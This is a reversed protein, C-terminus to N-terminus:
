GSRHISGLDPSDLGRLEASHSGELRLEGVVALPLTRVLSPVDRPLARPPRDALRPDAAALLSLAVHRPEPGLHRVFDLALSFRGSGVASRLEAEPMPRVTLAHGPRSLAGCVANGIELLYPSDASVAVESPVGGWGAGSSATHAPVLGLHAFRSPSLGAVLDSAVGPAGWQGADRGTRLVISGLPETSFPLAGERSRHLGAGLFGVDADGSEFSRLSGSLDEAKKVTIGDLFAPGRAAHVNRELVFGGRVKTARFAGTGDPEDVSSGRAVIATAPSALADALADPRAGPVVVSLADVSLPKGWGAFLPRAAGARARELAWVVDRATLARGRATLLGARLVVRAGRGDTEPMRAALAPYPKGGPDWAFLPDFVAPALWASLPDSSSHPDIRAVSLPLEIRLMGGTPRRGLARAIPTALAFSLMARRGLRPAPPARTM